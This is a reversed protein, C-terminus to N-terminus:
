SLSRLSVSRARYVRRGNDLLILRTYKTDHFNDRKMDRSSPWGPKRIATYLIEGIANHDELLLIANDSSVRALSKRIRPSSREKLPAEHNEPEPDPM